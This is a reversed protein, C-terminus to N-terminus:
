EISNSKHYAKRSYFIKRTREIYFEKIIKITKNLILKFVFNIFSYNLFKLIYPACLYYLEIFIKGLYHKKLFEDRFLRLTKVEESNYDNYIVTAIYCGGSSTGFEKKFKKLVEMLEPKHTSFKSFAYKKMNEIIVKGKTSEPLFLVLKELYFDFEEEKSKIGDFVKLLEYFVTVVINIEIQDKQTVFMSPNFKELSAEYYEEIIKLYIQYNKVVEQVNKMSSADQAKKLYQMRYHWLKQNRTEIQIKIKKELPTVYAQDLVKKLCISCLYYNSTIKNGKQELKKITQNALRNLFDFKENCKSCTKKSTKKVM